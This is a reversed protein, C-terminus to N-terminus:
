LRGDSTSKNNISGFIEAENDDTQATGTALLLATVGPLLLKKM